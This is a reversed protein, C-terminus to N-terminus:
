ESNRYSRQCFTKRMILAPAYEVVPKESAQSKKKLTNDYEGQSSISHVLAQLVGEICDRDWPDDNSSSLSSKAADEAHVPRDEVDLMDLEPRVVAGDPMPRVTFKGM